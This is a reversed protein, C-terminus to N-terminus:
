QLEGPISPGVVGSVLRCIQTEDLDVVVPSNRILTAEVLVVELTSIALELPTVVRALASTHRTQCWRRGFDDDRMVTTIEVRDEAFQTSGSNRISFRDREANGSRDAASSRVLM